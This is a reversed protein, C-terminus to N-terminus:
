SPVDVAWESIAWLDLLALSAIAEDRLAPDTPGLRAAEALADLSRRRRGALGSYRWARSQALYSRGLEETRAREAEASRRLATLAKTREVGIRDRERRLTVAAGTSIIAVTLTLAGAVVLLAAPLPNRKCWRVGRGVASAPRSQIPRNDLFRQLEEGMEVASGFRDAPEKALAKLIITELDRPIHRDVKSPPMPPERLVREVLRPRDNDPFAP